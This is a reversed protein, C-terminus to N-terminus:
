GGGFCGGGVVDWSLGIVGVVVFLGWGDVRM